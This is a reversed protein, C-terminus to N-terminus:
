WDRWGDSDSRESTARDHDQQARCDICTCTWYDYGSGPDFHAHCETM